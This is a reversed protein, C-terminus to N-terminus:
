KGERWANAVAVLEERANIVDNRMQIEREIRKEEALQELRKKKKENREKRNKEMKEDFKTKMTNTLQTKKEQGAKIVNSMTNLFMDAVINFGEHTSSMVDLGGCSILSANYEGREREMPLTFTTWSSVSFTENDYESTTLSSSDNTLFTTDEAFEHSPISTNDTRKRECHYNVSLFADLESGGNIIAMSTESGDVSSLDVNAKRKLGQLKDELKM